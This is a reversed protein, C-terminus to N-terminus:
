QTLKSLLFKARAGWTYKNVFDRHATIGMENASSPNEILFSLGKDWDNFNSPMCLYSNVNHKFVEKLVNIESTLIPKSVSMYEFLKLPSMWSSTDMGNSILVKSQYPAILIDFSMLYRPVLSPEIFGYFIVNKNSFPHPSLM